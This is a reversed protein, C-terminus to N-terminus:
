YTKPGTAAAKTLLFVAPAHFPLPQSPLHHVVLGFHEAVAEVQDRMDNITAETLAFISQPPTDEGRWQSRVRWARGGIEEVLVFEVERIPSDDALFLHQLTPGDSPTPHNRM